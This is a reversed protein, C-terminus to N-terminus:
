FDLAAAAGEAMRSGVLFLSIEMVMWTGIGFLATSLTKHTRFFAIM